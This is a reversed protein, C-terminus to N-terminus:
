EVKGHFGAKQLAELVAAKDLNKGTIKFEKQPGKGSFTVKSGKFLSTIATQCMGCCIHVNKVTIEDAKDGKRPAGAEVALRKGDDTVRGYYGAGLLAKIADATGKADRTTFTVTKTKQNCKIDSVGDVGKLTKTAINVCQKCCLHVGSVEVKGAEVPSASLGAIVVAAATAVFLQRM